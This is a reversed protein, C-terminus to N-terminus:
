EGAMLTNSSGDKVGRFNGEGYRGTLSVIIADELVHTYGARLQPAEANSPGAKPRAAKQAPAKPKAKIMLDMLDPTAKDVWGVPPAKVQGASAVPAASVVLAAVAALITLARIM